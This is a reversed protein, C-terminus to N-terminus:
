MLKQALKKGAKLLTKVGLEFVLNEFGENKDAQRRINEAVRKPSIGKLLDLYIWANDTLLNELLRNKKM